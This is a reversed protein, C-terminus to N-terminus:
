EGLEQHVNKLEDSIGIEQPCREECEGCENCNSARQEASLMRNYLLSNVEKDSFALSDNYLYFSEPINVGNPCPMCYGCGTCDVAMMSRYSEAARAVLELEETSLSGAHGRGAIEINEVLQDMSSMGSLVTSVEPHNWIWRLAWEAASRREKASDWIARVAPPVNDALKGGRLPEMVIIGVGKGAAYLLGERGAQYNEDLYNYQIQCVSWAYSDVIEKFLRGDDHFSFGIYRVRGDALARDCFRLVRLEKIRQWEQRSMGHLLYCDIFRVDLTKLQEDLFRDFDEETKALWTPSKTAIAVKDRYPKIVRGLVPESQGGHYRYATDFYNIGSQVAQSVMRATEEEDVKKSPDFADLRGTANLIPLRMCGFGLISVDSGTKGLKRYLM